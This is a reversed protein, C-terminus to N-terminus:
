ILLFLLSLVTSLDISLRLKTSSDILESVDENPFYQIQNSKDAKGQVLETM